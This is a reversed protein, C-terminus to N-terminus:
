IEFPLKKVLEIKEPSVKAQMPIVEVGAEVAKKLMNSYGPDIERAPAFIEVDSRQVIYLMVARMGQKKVEILTKLHKLGRATVADPFLAYKGEKLTVNKVEVFCKEHDNEAFVDFRSDNFKVERKVTTYGTLGPIEGASVAEFALKNPNGTNIGVWDGNIKIMEWTFKTKRKPDNVPSLYVEAGNELCSKMSGSNTCHAIVESGDDLKVDALFRKYRRILTGHILKNQFIM